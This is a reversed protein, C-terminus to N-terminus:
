VRKKFYIEVLKELVPKLQHEKGQVLELELGIPGEPNESICTKFVYFVKEGLNSPWSKPLKLEQLTKEMSAADEGIYLVRLPEQKFSAIIVREKRPQNIGIELLEQAKLIRVEGSIQALYEANVSYNLFLYQELTKINERTKVSKLTQVLAQYLPKLKEM